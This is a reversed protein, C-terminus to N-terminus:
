VKNSEDITLSKITLAHIEGSKIYSDLVAYIIKHRDIITKDKFIDSIVQVTYKSEGGEVTVLSDKIQNSLVKKILDEMSIEGM